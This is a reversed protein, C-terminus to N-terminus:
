KRASLFRPIIHRLYDDHHRQMFTVPCWVGSLHGSTGPGAVYAAAELRSGGELVVEVSEKLYLGNEVGEFDDLLEMVEGDLDRVLAGRICVGPEKVAVPIRPWGRRELSYRQFGHLTAPAYVAPKGTLALFLEPHMLVGYTFLDVRM